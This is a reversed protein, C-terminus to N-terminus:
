VAVYGFLQNAHDSAAVSTVHGDITRRMVFARRCLLGALLLNPVRLRQQTSIRDGTRPRGLLHLARDEFREQSLGLANPIMMGVARRSAPNSTLLTVNM